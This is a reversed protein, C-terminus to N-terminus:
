IKKLFYFSQTHLETIENELQSITNNINDLYKVIEEQIELSPISIDLLHLTKLNINKYQFYLYYGLYKHLIIDTKPKVSVGFNNLFIKDNLLHVKYKTIIINYGDRNYKKSTKDYSIRNGYIKYKENTNENENLFKSGYEITAITDLRKILLKDNSLLRKEEVYDVYNFSYKNHILKDITSTLLLHKENTFINYDYFNIKNTQYLRTNKIFNEDRKKIFYLICLKITTNCMGIPLYIIERIDCIKLFLERTKIYDKNEKSYLKIDYPLLIMCKNDLQLTEIISLLEM